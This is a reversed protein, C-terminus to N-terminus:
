IFYITASAEGNMPHLDAYTTQVWAVANATNIYGLEVLDRYALQAQEPSKYIVYYQWHHKCRDGEKITAHVLNNVKINDEIYHLIKVYKEDTYTKYWDPIVRRLETINTIEAEHISKLVERGHDYILNLRM